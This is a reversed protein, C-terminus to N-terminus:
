SSVTWGGGAVIRFSMQTESEAERRYIYEALMSKAKDYLEIREECQMITTKALDIRNRVLDALQNPGHELDRVFRDVAGQLEDGIKRMTGIQERQNSILKDIHRRMVSCMDAHSLRGGGGLVETISHDFANVLVNLIQQGEKRRPDETQGTDDYRQRRVPDALVAYAASLVAMRKPDGGKDPHASKAKRRYASRIEEPTAECSVGLTEYPDANVM